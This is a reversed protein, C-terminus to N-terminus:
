RETSRCTGFDFGADLECFGKAVCDSSQRCMESTACVAPVSLLQAPKAPATMAISISAPYPSSVPHALLLQDDHLRKIKYRHSADFKWELACRAIESSNRMIVLQLWHKGSPLSVSYAYPWGGNGSKRKGDVSVVHMEEDYFFLYHWYGDVVAVESESVDFDGYNEHIVCGAVFALM